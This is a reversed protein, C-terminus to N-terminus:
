RSQCATVRRNEAVWRHVFEGPPDESDQDAIWLPCVSALGISVDRPVLCAGHCPLEKERRENRIERSAAIGQVYGAPLM